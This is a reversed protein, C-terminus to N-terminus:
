RNLMQKAVAKHWTKRYYQIRYCFLVIQVNSMLESYPCPQEVHRKIAASNKKKKKEQKAYKNVATQQISQGKIDQENHKYFVINM